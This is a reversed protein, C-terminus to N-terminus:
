RATRIRYYRHGVGISIPITISSGSATIPAEWPLWTNLDTSTETQYKLGPTSTVGLQPTASNLDLITIRSLVNASGPSPLTLVFIDQSSDPYRGETNDPTQPGFSVRDIERNDPATLILSEGDNDLKFNM